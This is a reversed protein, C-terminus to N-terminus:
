GKLAKLRANLRKGELHTRILNSIQQAANCAANLSQATVEKELLSKAATHLTEAVAGLNVEITVDEDTKPRAPLKDASQM